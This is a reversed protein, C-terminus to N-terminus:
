CNQRPGAIQDRALRSMRQGFQAALEPATM